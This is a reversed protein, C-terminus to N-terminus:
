VCRSTYLLCADVGEMVGEKIAVQSGKSIEEATQFVFKVNGKLEGRHEQLVRLAGLLMAAHTDHGCAHM